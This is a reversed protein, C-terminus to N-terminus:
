RKLEQAALQRDRFEAGYDRFMDEGDPEVDALNDLHNQAAEGAAVAADNSGPAKAAKAIRELEGVTLDSIEDGAELREIAESLLARSKEDDRFADMGFLYRM